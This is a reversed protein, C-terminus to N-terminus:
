RSFKAWARRIFVTAATADRTYIEVYADYNGLVKIVYNRTETYPVASIGSTTGDWCGSELWGQVTGRGGNYAALAAPLNGSFQRLLDRLYWTGFMINLEPDYLDEASLGEYGLQLAIWGGTSPLIQMLGRADKPSTASSKFKSEARIVAAVLFPDIDNDAAYKNILDVYPMPYVLEWIFPAGVVMVM